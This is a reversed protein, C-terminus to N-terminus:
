IEGKLTFVSAAITTFGILKSSTGNKFLKFITEPLTLGTRSVAWSLVLSSDRLCDLFLDLCEWLKHAGTCIEEKTFNMKFGLDWNFRYLWYLYCLRLAPYTVYMKQQLLLLQYLQSTCFSLFQGKCKDYYGCNRSSHDLYTYNTLDTCQLKVLFNKWM